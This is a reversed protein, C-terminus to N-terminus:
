SREHQEEVGWKLRDLWEKRSRDLTRGLTRRLLSVLFGEWSEQLRVRTAAGGGEHPELEITWLQYGRGGMTRLTWGVRRPEDVEMIRSVIRMGDARWHLVTGPELRGRLIALRIGPHWLPWAEVRVLARWVAEPSASVTREQQVVVPAGARFGPRNRSRLTPIV